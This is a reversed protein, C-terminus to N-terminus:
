SRDKFYEVWRPNEEDFIEKQEKTLKWPYDHFLNFTKKKDFSFIFEGLSPEESELWYIKDTPENKIWRNSQDM